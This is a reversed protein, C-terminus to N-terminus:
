APWGDAGITVRKRHGFVRATEAEDCSSCLNETNADEDEGGHALPTKHNVVTALKVIGKALCHECLGGTRALRKQRLAVGVSGRIRKGKSSLTGM